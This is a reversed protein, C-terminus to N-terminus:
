KLNGKIFDFAEEIESMRPLDGYVLNSFVGTYTADLLSRWNGFKSFIPADVLPKEFCDTHAFFGTKEDEICLDCLPKFDEGAVFHRYEDHKLIQCIDYLHRIRDSLKEIPDENYSDKIVGLMKEVLTRRVSLVNISFHELEFQSILDTENKEALVEGILTQLERSEFPEPETFSNVEVLLEPSAQGFDGGEISRPYQYVTKRYKSGKSERADEKLYTLGQTVIGEVGKLLKKRAADRTDGALVALDIDESFRDILRYAKSLSTGGKFVVDGVHSSESLYKLAKTVWYDKEVYVHPLGITEATVAVLESFVENDEHLKM